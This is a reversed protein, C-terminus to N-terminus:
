PWYDRFTLPKLCHFFCVEEQTVCISTDNVSCPLSKGHCQKASFNDYYSTYVCNSVMIWVLLFSVYQDFSVHWGATDSSSIGSVQDLKAYLPAAQTLHSQWEQGSSGTTYDNLITSAMPCSYTPELSDFSSSEVFASVYQSSSHPFLGKLIGSAVQSTIM